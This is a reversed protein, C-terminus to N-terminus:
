GRLFERDLLNVTKTMHSARMASEAGAANILVPKDKQIGFRLHLDYPCSVEVIRAEYDLVGPCRNVAKAHTAPPDDRVLPKPDDWIFGGKDDAILWGVTALRGTGTKKRVM